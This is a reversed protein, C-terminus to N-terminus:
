GRKLRHGKPANVVDYLMHNKYSSVRLCMKAQLVKYRYFCYSDGIYTEHVRPIDRTCGLIIGIVENQIREIREPKQITYSM